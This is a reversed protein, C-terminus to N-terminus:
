VSPRDDDEVRIDKGTSRLATRIRKRAEDGQEQPWDYFGKGSKIGLNGNAVLDELIPSPTTTNSLDPLLAYAVALVTDLGALDFVEFIGAVSWRRGISTHIVTDIDEITAVGDDVLALAERFLAFQLRNGIFGLREKEVVVPAKGMQEYLSHVTDITEQSTEPGRVVEVLPVVHPPNFYHTVLVKDPRTTSGSLQSPMFSSTNSSLIAHRPTARDFIAFLEQKLPLRESVAEVVYDVGELAEELSTLFAIRRVAAQAEASDGLNGEIHERAAWLAPESADTLRVNRGAVAFEQAIGHGMIGAGIVAITQIQDIGSV